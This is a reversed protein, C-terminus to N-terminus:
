AAFFKTYVRRIAKRYGAVAARFDEPSDFGCRISVRYFPAPEAPLIMEGEYSWRRLIGEIRRLKVYNEILLKADSQSLAGADRARELARLTNPERVGRELCFAQAIFEADIL